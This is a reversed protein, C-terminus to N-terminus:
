GSTSPPTNAALGAMHAQVSRIRAPTAGSTVTSAESPVPVAM